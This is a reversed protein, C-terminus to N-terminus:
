ITENIFEEKEFSGKENWYYKYKKDSKEFFIEAVNSSELKYTIMEMNNIISQYTLYIGIFRYPNNDNCKIQQNPPLHCPSGIFSGIMSVVENKYLHLLKPVNNSYNSNICCTCREDQFRQLPCKKCEIYNHNNCTYSNNSQGKKLFSIYPQYKINLLFVHLIEYHAFKINWILTHEGCFKGGFFKSKQGAQFYQMYKGYLKDDNIEFRINLKTDKKAVEFINKIEETIKKYEINIIKNDEEKKNKEKCIKKELKIKEQEEIYKKEKEENLYISGNKINYNDCITKNYELLKKALTKMGSEYILIKNTKVGFQRKLSSGCHYILYEDRRIKQDKIRQYEKDIQEYEKRKNDDLEIEYEEIMEDIVIPNNDYTKGELYDLLSHIDKAKRSTYYEQNTKDFWERMKKSRKISEKTVEIITGRANIKLLKHENTNLSLSSIIEKISNIIRNKNEINESKKKVFLEIPNKEIVENQLRDHEESLYKLSKIKKEIELVLNLMNQM